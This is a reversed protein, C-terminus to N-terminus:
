PRTIVSHSNNRKCKNAQGDQRRRGSRMTLRRFNYRSRRAQPCGSHQSRCFQNCDAEILGHAAPEPIEQPAVDKSWRSVILDVHTRIQLQVAQMDSEFGTLDVDHPQVFPPQGAYTKLVFLPDRYPWGVQDKLSRSVRCRLIRWRLNERG